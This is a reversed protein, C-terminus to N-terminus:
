RRIPDPPANVVLPPLTAAIRIADEVGDTYSPPHLRNEVPLSSVQVLSMDENMLM